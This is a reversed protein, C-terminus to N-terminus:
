QMKRIPQSSKRGKWEFDGAMGLFGASIIYLIHLPQLWVFYAKYNRVGFFDAVPSLYSLETIVKVLILGIAPIFYVANICGAVFATTISINFLYVIALIATLKRDPYKGSKSAWRIRQSWFARWTPQPDTTVIAAKQKLVEIRAGETQSVKMMLLYDDGSVLHDVGAYGGVRDFIARTFALNAGNCMRGLRLQHAAVTIGQMSMFDIQQFRQMVSGDCTYAVPAIIMDAQKQEYTRVIASIWGPDAVCDADTTVILIGSSHRIGSEIAAKKYSVVPAQLERSLDICRYGARSVMEATEDTSHDDVVIVELSGAPYNQLRIAELCAGIRAAENRAPIIVSVKTQGSCPTEDTEEKSAKWGRRYLVMLVWYAAGIMGFFCILVNM